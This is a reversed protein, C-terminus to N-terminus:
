SSKAIPDRIGIAGDRALKRGSSRSDDRGSQGIVEASTAIIIDPRAKHLAGATDAARQRRYVEAYEVLAGRKRLGDALTDSGGEGRVVIIRRNEIRAAQLADLELLASSSYDNCPWTAGALGAEQMAQATSKGVAFLECMATSATGLLPAGYRVANRSVFILAHCQQVDSLVARATDPDQAAAIDIAPLVIPIGGHAKIGEALSQAQALPRTVLVSTGALPTDRAVANM